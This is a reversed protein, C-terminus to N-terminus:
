EDRLENLRKAINEEVFLRDKESGIKSICKAINDELAIKLFTKGIILDIKSFVKRRAAIEKQNLTLKAKKGKLRLNKLEEELKSKEVEINSIAEQLKNRSLNRYNM